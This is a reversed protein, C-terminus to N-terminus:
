AAIQGEGKGSDEIEERVAKPAEEEFFCSIAGDFPLKTM